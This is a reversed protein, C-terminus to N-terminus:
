LQKSMNIMVVQKVIYLSIIDNNIIIIVFTVVCVRDSVKCSSIFKHIKTVFMTTIDPTCADHRFEVYSMMPKITFAQRLLQLTM